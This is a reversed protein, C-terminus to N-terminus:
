TSIIEVFSKKRFSTNEGLIYKYGGHALINGFLLAAVSLCQGLKLLARALCDFPSGTMIKKSNHTFANPVCSKQFFDLIDVQSAAQLDEFDM